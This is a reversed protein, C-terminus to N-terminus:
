TATSFPVSTSWGRLRAFDTVTSYHEARWGPARIRATRRAVTRHISQGLFATNCSRRMATPRIRRVPRLDPRVVMRGPRLGMRMALRMGPGPHTPLPPMALDTLPIRIGQLMRIAMTRTTVGRYPCCRSSCFAACRRSWPDRLVAPIEWVSASLRQCATDLLSTYAGDTPFVSAAASDADHGSGAESPVPPGQAPSPRHGPM